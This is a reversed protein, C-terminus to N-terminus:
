KKQEPYYQQAGGKKSGGSKAGLKPTAQMPKAAKKAGDSSSSPAASNEPERPDVQLKKPTIDEGKVMKLLTGAEYVKKEPM